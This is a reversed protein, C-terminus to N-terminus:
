ARDGDQDMGARLADCAEAPTTIEYTNQDAAILTALAKKRHRRPVGDLSPHCEIFTRRADDETLANISAPLGPFRKGDPLTAPPYARDAVSIVGVAAGNPDRVLWSLDHAPVFGGRFPLHPVLDTSM